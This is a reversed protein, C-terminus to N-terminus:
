QLLPHSFSYSAGIAYTETDAGSDLRVGRAAVYTTFRPMVEYFAGLTLGEGDIGDPNAAANPVVDKLLGVSAALDLKPVLTYRASLLAYKREDAENAVDVQEFSAGLSLAEFRYRGYVRIADFSTRKGVGFVADGGKSDLYEIGAAVAGEEPAYRLGVGYDEDEDQAADMFYSARLSFGLVSPSAYALTEDNFGNSLNSLGYSAGEAAFAGNFGVVSSDHFPDLERGTQRYFSSQRGYGLTGFPSSIGGFFERERDGAVTNPVSENFREVGYQYKLFASYGAEAASLSLGAYSGNSHGNFDDGSVDSSYQSASFAALGELTAEFEVAIAPQTAAVLALVAVRNLNRAQRM